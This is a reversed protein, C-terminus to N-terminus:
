PKLSIYGLPIKNRKIPISGWPIISSIATKQLEAMLRRTPIDVMFLNLPLSFPLTLISIIVPILVNTKFIKGKSRKAAKISANMVGSIMFM